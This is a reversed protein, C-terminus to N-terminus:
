SQSLVRKKASSQEKITDKRLAGGVDERPQITSLEVQEVYVRNAKSQPMKDRSVNVFVMQKSSNVVM